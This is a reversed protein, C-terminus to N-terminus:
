QVCLDPFLTLCATGILLITLKTKNQERLDELLEQFARQTAGQTVINGESM